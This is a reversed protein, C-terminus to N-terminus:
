SKTKLQNKITESVFGTVDGGMLSIQKVLSSHIFSFEPKSMLFITELDPCMVTNMGAMQAEYDYDVPGRVGKILSSANHKTALDVILGEFCEVKVSNNKDLNVKSVEKEIMEVREDASFLTKKNQNVGVAIVIEDFIKLSRLLIDRHGLTFPDFSGPYVALTM